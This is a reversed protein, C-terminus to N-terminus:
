MLLVAYLKYKPLSTFFYFLGTFSYTCLEDFSFYTYSHRISNSFYPLTIMCNEKYVSSKNGHALSSCWEIACLSLHKVLKSVNRGKSEM